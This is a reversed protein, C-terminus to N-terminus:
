HPHRTSDTLPTGGGANDNNGDGDDDDDAAAALPAYYNGGGGSGSGYNMHHRSPHSPPTMGHTTHPTNSSDLAADCFFSDQYQEFEDDDVDWQGLNFSIRLSWWSLHLALISTV